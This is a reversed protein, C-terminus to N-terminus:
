GHSRALSASQPSRRGRAPSQAFPIVHPEHHLAEANGTLETNPKGPAQVPANLKSPQPQNSVGDAKGSAEARAMRHLSEGLLRLEAHLKLIVVSYTQVEDITKSETALSYLRGLNHHALAFQEWLMQELPHSSNGALQRLEALYQKFGAVTVSDGFCTGVSANLYVAASSERMFLSQQESSLPSSSEPM